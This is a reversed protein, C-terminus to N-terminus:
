PTASTIGTICTSRSARRMAASAGPSLAAFFACRRAAQDPGTLQALLDDPGAPGDLPLGFGFRFAAIEARDTM